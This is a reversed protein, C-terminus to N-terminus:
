GRPISSAVAVAAVLAVVILSIRDRAAFVIPDDTMRGRHTTMVMRLIWYLLLPCVLWLIEPRAYLTQVADSSIYLAMVMVAAHGSALTIGRLIPLDDVLYARGASGRGTVLQDMLEAQRKVAALALFMFMSFGLLWPSLVIGAAAAGAIIRVTYLGALTLVDVLLKRKLWLSYAFTATLYLALTGLFLPNGTLVGFVAACALLGGSMVLGTTATLAGAAFPRKRKRPHARDSPLDILDNIIYVASATMCFALFGIFVAGVSSLDHAALLPVFLLLNKSWQHPRAAYLMTRWRSSPSALHRVSGNVGEAARRLAGDAGVTIAQRASAWVPLDARSDGMYDYGGTGFREILFKAKEAGKLNRDGTTGHVEDFLGTAAAVADAQRQDSATVLATRRGAARAARLENLVDENLPLEDGGIVQEDAVRRKFGARGLALWGPLRLLLAPNRCILALLAEHLTDTRCLTGDLDAVLLVARDDVTASGGVDKM